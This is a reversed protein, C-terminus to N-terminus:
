QPDIKQEMGVLRPLRRYILLPAVGPNPGTGLSHTRSIKCRRQDFHNGPPHGRRMQAAGRVALAREREASCQGSLRVTRLGDATAGVVMTARWRRWGKSRSIRVTGLAALLSLRGLRRTRMSFTTRSAELLASVVIRVVVSVVPARRVVGVFQAGYSSFPRNAREVREQRRPTV